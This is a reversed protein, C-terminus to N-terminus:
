AFSYRFPSILFTFAQVTEDPSRPFQLCKSFERHLEDGFAIPTGLSYLTDLTPSYDSEVKRLSYVQYRLTEGYKLVTVSRSDQPKFGVGPYAM